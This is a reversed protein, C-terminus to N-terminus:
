FYAFWPYGYELKLLEAGGPGSTQMQWLRYNPTNPYASDSEGYYKYTTVAGNGLNMQKMQDLANYSTGGVYAGGGSLTVPLGRANYGTTVIEGDPYTM